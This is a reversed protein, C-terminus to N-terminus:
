WILSGSQYLIVLLAPLFVILGSLIGSLFNHLVTEVLKRVQEAIDLRDRFAERHPYVEAYYELRRIREALALNLEAHHSESFTSTRM